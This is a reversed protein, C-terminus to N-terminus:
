AEKSKETSSVEAVSMLAYRGVFGTIPFLLCLYKITEYFSFGSLSLWYSVFLGVCAALCVVFSFSSISKLRQLNLQLSMAVGLFVVLPVWTLLTFTAAMFNSARKAPPRMQHEIEPLASLTTDSTYLLAKKYLPFIAQQKNPMRVDVTGLTFEVPKALLVDGVIISLTYVGSSYDMMEVVDQLSLSATYTIYKSSSGDMGDASTGAAFASKGTALDTLRLFSQHPAVIAKTQGAGMVIYEVRITEGNLASASIQDSSITNQTEVPIMDTALDGDSNVVGILVDKIDVEQSVVFYAQHALTKTRGAVSLSFSLKYRGAGLAGGASAFNLASGDFKLVQYVPSEAGVAQVATAEISDCAVANGYVDQVNLVLTQTAADVSVTNSELSIYLPSAKYTSVIRFAEHVKALVAIDSSYQLNLLLETVIVLRSAVLRLKKDTLKSLPVILLVDSDKEGEGSPILQFAKEFVDAAVDPANLDISFVSLMELVAHLNELSADDSDPSSKFKGEPTM